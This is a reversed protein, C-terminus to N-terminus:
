LRATKIGAQNRLISLALGRDNLKFPLPISGEKTPHQFIAHVCNWRVRIWGDRKLAREAAKHFGRDSM